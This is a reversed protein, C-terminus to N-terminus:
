LFLRRDLDGARVPRGKMVTWEPIIRKDSKRKDGTTDRCTFDGNAVSFLSMTAEAGERIEREVGLKKAPLTSARVMIDALPMGLVQVNTLVNAFTRATPQSIIYLDTSITFDTFGQDLAREASAFSFSGAGHALDFTVGRAYADRVSDRVKGNPGIISHRPNRLFHCLTDGEKLFPLIEDVTPPPSGIHVTVPLGLADGADRIRRVYYLRDSRASVSNDARVKLGVIREGHGEVVKEMAPLDDWGIRTTYFSSVQIGERKVNLLAYCPVDAGDAITNELRHYNYAGTTGADLLATVGHRSGLRKIPSGATKGHLIDVYHVHLDVWGPSAYLGAGSIVESGGLTAPEAIEKIRGGSIGIDCRNFEDGTLANVEKLVLQYPGAARAAKSLALTAAAAGGIFERRNM